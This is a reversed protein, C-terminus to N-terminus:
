QMHFYKRYEESFLKGGIRRVGGYLHKTLLEEIGDTQREDILRIMEKHEKLVDPLNKAGLIDLRMFRSYDPHPRSLREWLFDKGTAQFWISHMGHDKQLFVNADFEELNKAGEAIQEMEQYCYRVREVETQSCTRIFDRLVMTEVAVREYILQTAVDINIVTVNTSRYPVIDIFRNVQLRQLVGRIPTRSVHFRECLSKETLVEGPLIKLSVIEDELISYIEDNGLMAEMGDNRELRVCHICKSKESKIRFFNYRIRRLIAIGSM